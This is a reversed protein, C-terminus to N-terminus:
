VFSLVLFEKHFQKPNCKNDRDVKHIFSIVKKWIGEMKELNKESCLERMIQRKQEELVARPLVQDLSSDELFFNGLEVDDSKEDLADGSKMDISVPATGSSHEHSDSSDLGMEDLQVRFETSATEDVVDCKNAANGGSNGSPVYEQGKDEAVGHSSSVYGSELIDVSLGSFYNSFLFSSAGSIHILNM